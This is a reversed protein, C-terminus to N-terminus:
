EMARRITKHRVIGHGMKSTKYISAAHQPEINQIYIYICNELALSASWSHEGAKHVYVWCAAHAALGM